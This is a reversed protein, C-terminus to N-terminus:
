EEWDDLEPDYDDDDESYDLDLDEPEYGYDLAEELPIWNGDDDIFFGEGRAIDDISESDERDFFM